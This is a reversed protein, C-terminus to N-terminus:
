IPAECLLATLLKLHRNFTTGSIATSNIYEGKKLKIHLQVTCVYYLIVLDMKSPRKNMYEENSSLAAEIKAAAHVAKMRLRPDLVFNTAQKHIRTNISQAHPASPWKSQYNLYRKSRVGFCACVQDKTIRTFNHIQVAEYLSHAKVIATKSKHRELINLLTDELAPCDIDLASLAHEMDAPLKHVRAHTNAHVDRSLDFAPRDDLLYPQAVLGCNICVLSGDKYDECLQSSNCDRCCTSM